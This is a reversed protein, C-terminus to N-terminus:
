PHCKCQSAVTCGPRAVTMGRGTPRLACSWFCRPWAEASIGFAAPSLKLFVVTMSTNLAIALNGGRPHPNGAKGPYPDSAHSYTRHLPKIRCFAKPEDLRVSASRVNENMYGGNFTGPQLAEGIALLDAILDFLVPASSFRSSATEPRDLPAPSCVNQLRGKCYCSTAAPLQLRRSALIANIAGQGIFPEVASRRREPAQYPTHRPAEPRGDLAM